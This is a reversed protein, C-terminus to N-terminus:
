AEHGHPEEEPLAGAMRARTLDLVEAAVAPALQRIRAIRARTDALGAADGLLALNVESMLLSAEAAGAALAAAAGLDSVTFRTAFPVARRVLRLLQLAHEAVAAPEGAARRLADAVAQQAVARQEPDPARAARQAALLEALAAMDRDAAVMLPAELEGLSALIADLDLRRHALSKRRAALTVVLQTTALAEALTVAAVAGGGSFLDPDALGAIFQRIPQDVVSGSAASASSASELAVEGRAGCRLFGPVAPM